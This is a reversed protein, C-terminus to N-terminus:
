HGPDPDEPPGGGGGGGRCPYSRRRNDSYGSSAEDDTPDDDGGDGPDASGGGQPIIEARRHGENHGEAGHFTGKLEGGREVIQRGGQEQPVVRAAEYRAIQLQAMQNDQERVAEKLGPCKEHGHGASGCFSCVGYYLPPGPIVNDLNAVHTPERTTGLREVVRKLERNPYREPCKAYLHSIDGCFACLGIRDKIAVLECGDDHINTLTACSRCEGPIIPPEIAYPCYRNFPHKDGCRHCTYELIKPRRGKKRKPFSEKMPKSYFKAPCDASNHGYEGCWGCPCQGKHGKDCSRCDQEEPPHVRRLIRPSRGAGPKVTAITMTPNGASTAPHVPEKRRWYGECTLRTSRVFRPYPDPGHPIRQPEGARCERPTTADQRIVAPRTDSGGEAFGDYTPDWDGGSREGQGSRVSSELSSNSTTMRRVAEVAAERSDERTHEKPLLWKTGEGRNREREQVGGTEHPGEPREMTPVNSPILSDPPPQASEYAHDAKRRQGNLYRLARRKVRVAKDFFNQWTETLEVMAQQSRNKRQPQTRGIFGYVGNWIERHAFHQQIKFLLWMYDGEKWDYDRPYDFNPDEEEELPIDKILEEDIMEFYDLTPQLERELLRAYEKQTQDRLDELADGQLYEVSAHHIHQTLMTAEVRDHERRLAGVHDRLLTIQRERESLGETPHRNGSAKGGRDEAQPEGPETEPGSKDWPLSPRRIQTEEALGAFGLGEKDTRLTRSGPTCHTQRTSEAVPVPM